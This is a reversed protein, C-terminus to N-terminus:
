CDIVYPLTIRSNSKIVEKEEREIEGVSFLLSQYDM